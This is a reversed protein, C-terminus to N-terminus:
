NVWPAGARCVSYWNQSNTARLSARAETETFIWWEHLIHNLLVQWWADVMACAAPLGYSNFDDTYILSALQQKGTNPNKAGILNRFVHHLTNEKKKYLSLSIDFAYDKSALPPKLGFWVLSFKSPFTWNRQSMCVIPSKKIKKAALSQNAKKGDEGGISKNSNLLKPFLKLQYVLKM